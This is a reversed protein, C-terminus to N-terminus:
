RRVGHHIEPGATESPGQQGFATIQKMESHFASVRAGPRLSAAAYLGSLPFLVSREGLPTLLVAYSFPGAGLHEGAGAASDVLSAISHATGEWDVPAEQGLGDLRMASPLGYEEPNTSKLLGDRSFVGFDTVVPSARLREAFVAAAGVLRPHPSVTPEEPFPAEQAACPEATGEPQELEWSECAHGPRVWAEESLDEPTFVEPLDPLHDRSEEDSLRAAEILIATLDTFITRSQPRPESLFSFRGDKFSFVRFFAEEGELEGFSAHVLHGAVFFLLCEEGGCEIQLLGSKHSGGMMQVLETLGFDRLNGALVM